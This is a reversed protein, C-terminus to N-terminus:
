HILTLFAQRACRYKDRCHVNWGPIQVYKRAERFVYKDTSDKMCKVIFDYNDYIM